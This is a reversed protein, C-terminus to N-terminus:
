LCLEMYFWVCPLDFFDAFVGFGLVLRPYIFHEKLAVFTLTQFVFLDM